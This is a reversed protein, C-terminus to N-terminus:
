VRPLRAGHRCTHVPYTVLTYKYTYMYEYRCSARYIYTQGPWVSDSSAEAWVLGLGLDLDLGLSAGDGSDPHGSSAWLTERKATAANGISGGRRVDLAQRARVLILYSAYILIIVRQQRPVEGCRM